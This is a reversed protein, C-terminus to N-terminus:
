VPCIVTVAVPACPDGAVIVTVNLIAGAGGARERDFVANDNLPVCPLPVFGAACVTFTV